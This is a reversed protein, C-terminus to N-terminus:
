SNFLEARDVKAQKKTVKTAVQKEYLDIFKDGRKRRTNIIANFHINRLKEAEVREIKANAKLCIIVEFLTM